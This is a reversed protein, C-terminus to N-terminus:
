LTGFHSTVYIRFYIKIVDDSRYEIKCLKQKGENDNPIHKQGM